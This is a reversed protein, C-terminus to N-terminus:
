NKKGDTDGFALNWAEKTVNSCHEADLIVKTIIETLEQCSNPKSRINNVVEQIYSM